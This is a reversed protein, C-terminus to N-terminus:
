VKKRKRMDEEPHRDRGCLGEGRQGSKDKLSVKKTRGIRLIFGQGYVMNKASAWLYSARSTTKKRKGTTKANYTWKKKASAQNNRQDVIIILIHRFYLKDRFGLKNEEKM